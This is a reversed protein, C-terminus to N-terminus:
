FSTLLKNAFNQMLSKDLGSGLIIATAGVEVYEEILNKADNWNKLFHVFKKVDEVTLKQGIKEVELPTQLSWSDKTMWGLENRSSNWISEPSDLSFNLYVVIEGVQKNADRCGQKFAPLIENKLKDPSNRPSITVLHDGYKGAYYASKKGVASFYIPIRTKPKTYMYFFDSSFYKGTFNFPKDSKWLMKTLALGETLRDIRENWTPWKDNFFPRENVAEGTGVGLSFRGPYMNDITASAQAILAPHYRGGIPTSVLPGVKIRKTKELAVSMVSWAFASKKGSHYWPFFHDGFWATDFGLEDAYVVGDVFQAPDFDNEGLDLQFRIKSM